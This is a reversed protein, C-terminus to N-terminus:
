EASEINAAALRAKAGCYCCVPRGGAAWSRKGCNHCRYTPCGPCARFAAECLPGIGCNRCHGTPAAWEHERM